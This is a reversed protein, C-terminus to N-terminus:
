SLLRQMKEMSSRKLEISSHVYRNLTIKTDSHGLLESVTKADVGAEICRTAFTHRLTHFTVNKLGCAKIYRDFKAQMCRPETYKMKKTSLVYGTSRFVEYLEGLEEPFPVVRVSSESKPPTTIVVSKGNENIRMMTKNIHISGDSIDEWKLACLEGIRLGTYMALLTGFKHVDVDKTLYAALQKQEFITLCRTEKREERLYTIKPPNVGSDEYAYTLLMNLVILIDNITKNSLGKSVLTETFARIVEKDIDTVQVDKLVFIHNKFIGEYKMVTNPKSNLRVGSIWMLYIEYLNLPKSKNLTSFPRVAAIPNIINLDSASNILRGTRRILYDNIRNLSNTYKTEM